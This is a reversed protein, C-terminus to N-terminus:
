CVRYKWRMGNLTWRGPNVMPIKYLSGMNNWPISPISGIGNTNRGRICDLESKYKDAGGIAQSSSCTNSEWTCPMVHM